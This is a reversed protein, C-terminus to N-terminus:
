EILKRLSNKTLIKSFSKLTSTLKWYRKIFEIENFIDNWTNQGHSAFCIKQLASWQSRM